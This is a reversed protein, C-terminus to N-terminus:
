RQNHLLAENSLIEEFILVPPTRYSPRSVLIYKYVTCLNRRVSFGALAGQGM